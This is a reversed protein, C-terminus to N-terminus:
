EHIYFHTYKVSSKVNKKDTISINWHFFYIFLFWFKKNHLLVVYKLFFYKSTMLEFKLLLFLKQRQFPKKNSVTTTSLICHHMRFIYLYSPVTHTVFNISFLFQIFAFVTSVGRGAFITYM